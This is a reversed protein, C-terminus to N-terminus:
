QNILQNAQAAWQDRLVRGKGDIKKDLVELEATKM